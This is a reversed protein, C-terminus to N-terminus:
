RGLDAEEEQESGAEQAPTEQSKEADNPKYPDRKFVTEWNWERKDKDYSGRQVTDTNLKQAEHTVGDKVYSDDALRGVARVHDGKKLTAAAAEAEKGFASVNHFTTTQEEGQGHNVAIRFNVVPTGDHTKNLRPDATLNGRLWDKPKTETKGAPTGGAPASNENSM